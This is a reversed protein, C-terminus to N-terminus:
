ARPYLPIQTYTVQPNQTIKCEEPIVVRRGNYNIPQAFASKQRLGSTAGTHSDLTPHSDKESPSKRSLSPPGLIRLSLLTLDRIANAKRLAVINVKTPSAEACCSDPEPVTMTMHM